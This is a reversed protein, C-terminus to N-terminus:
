PREIGDFGALHEDDESVITLKGKAFGFRPSPTARVAVIHALPHNDHGTIVIKEGSASKAILEALQAKAQELSVTM